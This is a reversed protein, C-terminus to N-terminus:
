DSRLAANRWCAVVNVAPFPFLSMTLNHSYFSLCFFLSNTQTDEAIMLKYDLVIM